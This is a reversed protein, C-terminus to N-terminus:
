NCCAPSPLQMENCYVPKENFYTRKDYNVVELVHAWFNHSMPKTARCRISDERVLSWVWSGQMPLHIRWWQVVPFTWFDIETTKLGGLRHFKWVSVSSLSSFSALISHTVLSTIVAPLWLKMESPSDLHPPHPAAGFLHRRGPSPACTNIRWDGGTM